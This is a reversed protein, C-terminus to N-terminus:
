PGPSEASLLTGLPWVYSRGERLEVDVDAAPTAAEGVVGSRVRYTGPPLTLSKIERPALDASAQPSVSQNDPSLFEVRWAYGSHNEVVVTAVPLPRAGGPGACAALALFCAPALVRVARARLTAAFVSPRSRM